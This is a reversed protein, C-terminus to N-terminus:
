KGSDTRIEKHLQSEESNLQQQQGKTIYGGNATADAQEQQRIGNPQQKLSSLNGGLKGADADLSGGIRNDRHLVEARRPHNEEFATKPPPGQDARIENRLGNEEGNIQQQQTKTLYGGNQRFDQHEQNRIAADQNQLSSYHGSLHGYDKNMTRALHRDRNMVENRRPHAEKPHADRAYGPAAVVAAVISAIVIAGRLLGGQRVNSTRM